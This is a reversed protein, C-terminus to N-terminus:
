LGVGGPQVWMKFNRVNGRSQVNVIAGNISLQGFRMPQKPNPKVLGMPTKILLEGNDWMKLIGKRKVVRFRRWENSYDPTGTRHVHYVGNPDTWGFLLGLHENVECKYSVWNDGTHSGSPNFGQELIPVWSVKYGEKFPYAEFEIRFDNNFLYYPAPDNIVIPSTLMALMIILKM